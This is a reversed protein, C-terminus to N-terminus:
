LEEENSTADKLLQTIKLEDEFQSDYFFELIPTHRVDLNKALLSRMKGTLGNIAKKADGRKSADFTDWYVKAVSYDQNLEVRTISIMTLRPDAIERRLMLSIENRIKDQFLDKSSVGNNSKRKAM